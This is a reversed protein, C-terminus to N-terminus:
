ATTLSHGNAATDPAAPKSANEAAIDRLVASATGQRVGAASALTRASPYANHRRFHREAADRVQTRVADRHADPRRNSRQPPIREPGPGVAEAPPADWPSVLPITALASANRSAAVQALLADRAGPDLAVGSRFLM